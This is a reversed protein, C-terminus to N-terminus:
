ELHPSQTTNPHELFLPARLSFLLSILVNDSILTTPLPPRLDAYPM